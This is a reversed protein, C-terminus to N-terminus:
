CLNYISSNLQQNDMGRLKISLNLFDKVNKSHGIYLELIHSNVFKVLNGQPEVYESECIPTTTFAKPNELLKIIECTM